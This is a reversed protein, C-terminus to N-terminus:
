GKGLKMGSPKALEVLQHFLAVVPPAPPNLATLVPRLETWDTVPLTNLCTQASKRSSTLVGAWVSQQAAAPIPFYAEARDVTHLMDTCGRRMATANVSGDLNVSHDIDALAQEYDSMLDAGGFSVWAWVQLGLNRNSLPPRQLQTILPDFGAQDSRGDAARTEPYAAACLTVLMGCAAATCVLRLHPLRRGRPPHPRDPAARFRLAPRTIVAAGCLRLALRTAVAAPLAAALTAMGAFALLQPLFLTLVRWDGDAAIECGSHVTNLPRVCGDTGVVALLVALQVAMASGAAAMTAGANGRSVVAVALAAGVVGCFCVAFFWATYISLSPVFPERARWIWQHARLTVSVVGVGGAAGFFLGLATGAPSPRRALGALPLIWLGATLWLSWGHSSLSVVVVTLVAIVHTTTSPVLQDAPAYGTNLLALATSASYPLGGSFITGASQWWGYWWAFATGTVALTVVAAVRRPVRPLGAFLAACGATWWLVAAPVVVLLLLLFGEPFAPAWQIGLFSSAALEGGLQGVGLWLGASLGSPTPGEPGARVVDRWVAFGGVATALAAAPWVGTLVLWAPLYNVFGPAFTVLHGLLQVSVGTLVMPLAGVAVPVASRTLAAVREEWDPHTLLLSVARRRVPRQREHRTWYAVDAGQAVADLDAHIERTRLVDATTLYMLVVMFAALVLNRALHPAPDSGVLKWGNVAVFPLLVGILFVRWLAVTLYTIDVDRNRIHAFEHLLTAEFASRDQHFLKVLGLDLRVTYRGPRGFVVANTSFLANPDMVFRPTRRLESTAALDALWGIVDPQELPAVRARRGKWRPICVYLVLALVIVAATATMPLWLLKWRGVFHDICAHYAPTAQSLVNAPTNREPNGGGALACGSMWNHPDTLSSLLDSLMSLSGAIFLVVLLVFRQTTGAGPKATM